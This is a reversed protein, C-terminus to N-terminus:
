DRNFVDRSYVKDMVDSLLEDVRNAVIIDSMEKFEELNNVVKASFFRELELMPEYVVINVGREQLRVILGEVASYKFDKSGTKMSLRYIGVVKPKCKMVMDAIHDKRVENAAEVMTTIKQPIETMDSRLKETAEMLYKGGYGFSPNNYLDGVRNDACVAKIIAESDMGKLEAFTDLENFYAVRMALYCNSFLKVAEAERASMYFVPIDGGSNFLEGVRNGSEGSDGIVIRSPNLVDFLERGERLFEPSYIIRDTKLREKLRDTYGIPVDSRLIVVPKEFKLVASIYEELKFTDHYNLEGDYSIPMSVVCYDSDGISRLDCVAEGADFGAALARGYLGEDIEETEVLFIDNNKSLRLADAIGTYGNGIIAIKVIKEM